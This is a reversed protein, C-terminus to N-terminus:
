RASADELFELRNGFPDHSYFRTRGEISTDWETPYGAAALREALATVNDWHFGPHAQRAPAFGADVGVHLEIGDLQFWAGGRSRLRPPKDVETFGLVGM